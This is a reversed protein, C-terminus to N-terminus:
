NAPYAGDAWIRKQIAPCGDTATNSTPSCDRILQGPRAHYVQNLVSNSNLHTRIVQGETFYRANPSGNGSMVNTYDFYETAPGPPFSTLGFLLGFGWTQNPPVTASGLVLMPRSGDPLRSTQLSYPQSQGNRILGRVYYINVQDSVFGIDRAMNAFTAQNSGDLDYYQAALPNTTANMYTVASFDVGVREDRFITSTTLVDNAARAQGTAYDGYVVWVTIPIMIKDAFPVRIDDNGSTWPVATRVAPPRNVTFAMIENLGNRGTVATFPGVLAPSGPAVYTQDNAINKGFKGDVLLGIPNGSNNNLTIQDQAGAHTVGALVTAIAYALLLLRVGAESKYNSM